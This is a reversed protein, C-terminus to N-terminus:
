QLSLLIRARHALFVHKQIYSNERMDFRIDYFASDQDSPLLVPQETGNLFYDDILNEGWSDETEPSIYLGTITDGTNNVLTFAFGRDPSLALLDKPQILVKKRLSLDVNHKLYIEGDEDILRVKYLTGEEPADVSITAYSDPMIVDYPLLDEGWGSSDQSSIYVEFLPFGTKNVLVLDVGWLMQSFFLLVLGGLLVKRM